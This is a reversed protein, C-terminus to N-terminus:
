ICQSVGWAEPGNPAANRLVIERRGGRDSIQIFYPQRVTPAGLNSLAGGGRRDAVFWLGDRQKSAHEYCSAFQVASKATAYSQIRAAPTTPAAATAIVSLLAVIGFDRMRLEKEQGSRAATAFAPPGKTVQENVLGFM